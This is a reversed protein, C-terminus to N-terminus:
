PGCAHPRQALKGAQAGVALLERDLRGNGAGQNGAFRDEGGDDAVDGLPLPGFSLKALGGLFQGAGVVVQLLEGVDDAVIELLRQARDAAEQAQQFSLEVVPRVGLGAFVHLVDDLAALPHLLHDGVQQGVGADAGFLDFVPASRGGCGSSRAISISRAAM